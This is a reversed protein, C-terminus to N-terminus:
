GASENSPPKLVTATEPLMLLSGVLFGIAGVLTFTVSITAADVVLPHPRAFAFVASVMFALCGMWNTFTVWWSLSHPKWVWHSHCVELLALHGSALFLVSGLVDPGWILLDQQFWNLGPLMGDFTNLNFLLTGVFQLACSVWGIDRPRWGFWVRQQSV